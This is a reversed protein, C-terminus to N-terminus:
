LARAGGVWRVQRACAQWHRWQMREHGRQSHSVKLWLQATAWVDAAAEHRRRCPVQLLDLWQDLSLTAPREMVVPLVDALDLWRWPLAALGARRCANHLFRRDFDAHFALVPSAAVWERLRELGQAAPVGRSQAGQGVGHLLVNDERACLERPQLVLEISDAPVLTWLGDVREMGLAVVCLLEDRDPDLGSTEVDLVVWRREDVAPRRGGTLRSWLTM